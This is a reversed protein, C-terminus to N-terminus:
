SNACVYLSMHFEKYYWVCFKCQGLFKEERGTATEELWQDKLFTCLKVKEEIDYNSECLISGKRIPKM